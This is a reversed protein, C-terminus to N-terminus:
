LLGAAPLWGASIRNKKSKQATVYNEDDM